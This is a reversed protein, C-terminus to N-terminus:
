VETVAVNNDPDLAKWELYARYHRNGADGPVHWTKGSSLVIKVGETDAQENGDIDKTLFAQTIDM